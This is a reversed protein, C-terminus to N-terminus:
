AVRRTVDYDISARAKTRLPVNTAAIRAKVDYYLNDKVPLAAATAAELRIDLDGAAADVVTLTGDTNTVAQGNLVVLQNTVGDVLEFQMIADSDPAEYDHKVTVWVHTYGTMSGLGTLSITNTAGRTFLINNGTLAAVIAQITQTLTRNSYTWVLAAIGESWSKCSDARQLTATDALNAVMDRGFENGGTKLSLYVEGTTATTVTIKYRTPVNTEATATLGAELVTDTLPDCVDVTITMNKPAAFLVPTNAM